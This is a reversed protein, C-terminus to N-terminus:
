LGGQVFRQFEGQDLRGDRNTDASNFSASALDFGGGGSAGGEAGYNSSSSFSQSSYGAGGDAIDLGYSGAEAGGIM